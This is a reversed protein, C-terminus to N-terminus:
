SRKTKKKEGGIIFIPNERAYREARADANPEFIEEKGTVPDIKPGSCAQLFFIILFSLKLFFIKNKKPDFHTKNM